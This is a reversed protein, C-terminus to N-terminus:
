WCGILWKKKVKKKFSDIIWMIGMVLFIITYFAPKILLSVILLIVILKIIKIIFEPSFYDPNDKGFYIGTRMVEIGSIGVFKVGSEIIKFLGKSNPINTSISSNFTINEIIFSANDMASDVQEVSSDQIGVGIAFASLLFLLIVISFIRM